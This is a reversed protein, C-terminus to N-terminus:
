TGKAKKFSLRDSQLKFLTTTFKTIENKPITFDVFAKLNSMLFVGNVESFQFLILSTNIHDSENYSAEIITIRGSM